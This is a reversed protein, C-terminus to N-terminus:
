SEYEATCYDVKRSSSASLQITHMWVGNDWLSSTLREGCLSCEGFWLRNDKRYGDAPNIVKFGNGIGEQRIKQINTLETM